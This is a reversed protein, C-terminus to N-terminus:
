DSMLDTFVVLRESHSHAVPNWDGTCTILNLHSGGDTSKFISSVTEDKDYSELKRVIFTTVVGNSDEIYIKNGKQLKHLSDFVAPRNNKYGFHGDIVSSGNEGPEPSLNFWAANDAGKPTDVAGGSTLGVSEIVADVGISPINIRSPFAKGTQVGQIRPVVQTSLDAHVSKQSLLNFVFNFNLCLLLTFGVIITM